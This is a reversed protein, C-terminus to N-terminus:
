LLRQWDTRQFRRGDGQPFESLIEMFDDPVVEHLVTLWVCLFGTNPVLRRLARAARSRDPSHEWADIASLATEWVQTRLSVRQDHVQAEAEISVFCHDTEHVSEASGPNRSSPWDGVIAVSVPTKISALGNLQFRKITAWGPDSSAEIVVEQRM